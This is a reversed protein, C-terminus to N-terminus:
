AGLITPLIIMYYGATTPIRKSHMQALSNQHMVYFSALGLGSDYPNAILTM